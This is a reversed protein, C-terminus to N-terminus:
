PKFQYDNIIIQLEQRGNYENIDPYYVVDIHHNQEKEQMFRDVDSFILGTIRRGTGSVLELKVVNHKQGLVRLAAITLGKTAFLPKPNGTGFPELKDFDHILDFTIYDVPMPVDIWLKEVLEERSLSCNSNLAARFADIDSRKLSFGAAM